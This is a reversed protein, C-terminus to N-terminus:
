ATHLQTIAASLALQNAILWTDRAANTVAYNEDLWARLVAVVAVAFLLGDLSKAKLGSIAVSREDTFSAWTAAFDPNSFAAREEGDPIIQVASTRRVQERLTRGAATDAVDAGNAWARAATMVGAEALKCTTIFLSLAQLRNINQGNARYTPM